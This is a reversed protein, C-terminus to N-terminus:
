LSTTTMMPSTVPDLIRQISSHSEVAPVPRLIDTFNVGVAFESPSGRIPVFFSAPVFAFDDSFTLGGLAVTKGSLGRAMAVTSFLALMIAALIVAVVKILLRKDM